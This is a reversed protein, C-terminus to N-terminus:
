NCLLQLGQLVYFWYPLKEVECKKETRWDSVVAAEEQEVTRSLCIIVGSQM